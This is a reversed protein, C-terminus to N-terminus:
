EQEVILRRAVVAIVEAVREIRQAIDGVAPGEIEHAFVDADDNGAGALAEIVLPLGEAFVGIVHEALAARQGLGVADGVRRVHGPGDGTCGLDAMDKVFGNIGAAAQLVRVEVAGRKGGGHAVLILVAEIAGELAFPTM